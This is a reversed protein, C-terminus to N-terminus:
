FQLVKSHEAAVKDYRPDFVISPKGRYRADRTWIHYYMFVREFIGSPEYEKIARVLADLRTAFPVGQLEKDVRYDDPNWRLVVLQPCDLARQMELDRGPDSVVAKHDGWKKLGKWHMNEDVEVNLYGWPRKILFDLMYYKGQTRVCYVQSEHKFEIGEEVLREYVAFQHTLKPNPAGHTKLQEYTQPQAKPKPEEKLKKKVPMANLVISVIVVFM